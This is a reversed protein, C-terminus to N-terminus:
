ECLLVDLDTEDERNNMRGSKDRNRFFSLKKFSSDENYSKLFSIILHVASAYEYRSLLRSVKGKLNGWCIVLEGDRKIHPHLYSSYPYDLNIIDLNEHSIIIEFRGIIVDQIQIPKTIVSFSDDRVVLKEVLEFDRIANYERIARDELNILGNELADIELSLRYMDESVTGLEEFLSRELNAKKALFSRKIRLSQNLQKKVSEVFFQMEDRYGKKIRTKKSPNTYMQIIEDLIKLFKQIESKNLVKSGSDEIRIENDDAVLNLYKSVPFGFIKKLEPHNNLEWIICELIDLRISPREDKIARMKETMTKNSKSTLFNFFSKM